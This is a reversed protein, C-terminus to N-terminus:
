PEPSWLPNVVVRGCPCRLSHAVHRCHPCEGFGHGEFPLRCQECEYAGQLSLRHGAPCLATGASLVRSEAQARILSRLGDVVVAVPLLPLVLLALGLRMLLSGQVQGLANLLAATM